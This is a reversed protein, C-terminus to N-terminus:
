DKKRIIKYLEDNENKLRELNNQWDDHQASILRGYVGNASHSCLFDILANLKQYKAADDEQIRSLAVAYNAQGISEPGRAIRTENMRTHYSGPLVSNVWINKEALQYSLSYTFGNLAHKTASFSIFYPDPTSIGGSLIIIKGNERLLNQKLLYHVLKAAGFINVNFPKVWEAFDTESFDGSPGLVAASIIIANFPESLPSLAQDLSTYNELDVVMETLKATPFRASLEAFAAHINDANGSTITLDAGKELLHSAINFGIGRSAGFIAIRKERRESGYDM